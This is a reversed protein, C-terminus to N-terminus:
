SNTDVLHKLREENVTGPEATYFTVDHGTRKVKPLEFSQYIM